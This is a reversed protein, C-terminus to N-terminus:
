KVEKTNHTSNVNAQSHLFFNGEEFNPIKATKMLFFTKYM